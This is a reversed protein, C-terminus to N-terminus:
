RLQLLIGNSIMKYSYKYYGDLEIVVRYYGKHNGVRIKKFINKYIKKEYAKLYTDRKFDLVIRHPKVLLFNRILKDKTVIKLQKDLTLFSAYKISAVKKFRLQASIDKQSIFISSHWDISRNIQVTKSDSSGDFNKYNVTISELSRANSPLSFKATKLPEMTSVSNSTQSIDKEGKSPFFPNERADLSIFILILFILFKIM